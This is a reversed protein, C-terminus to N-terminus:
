ESSCILGDKGQGTSVGLVHDTLMAYSNRLQRCTITGGGFFNHHSDEGALLVPSQLEVRLSGGQRLDESALKHWQMSEMEEM